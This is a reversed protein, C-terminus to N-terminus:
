WIKVIDLMPKLNVDTAFPEERCPVVDQFSAEQIHHRPPLLLKPDMFECASAGTRRPRLLKMEPALKTNDPVVQLVVVRLRGIVQFFTLENAEHITM